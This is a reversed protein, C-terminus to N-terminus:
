EQELRHIGLKSRLHHGAGYLVSLPTEQLVSMGPWDKLLAGLDYRSGLEITQPPDPKVDRSCGWMRGVNRYGEPVEKQYMKTAYKVAYRKGGDKKRLAEAKTGAKLHDPNGSGVIRYWTESLWDKPVFVNVLIHFHPAGRRQWELFWLYSLTPHHYRLLSLLHNLHKKVLKGDQEINPYTLTLMTTFEVPTNAAVFMLRQRSEKSWEGLEGREGGGNGKANSHWTVVADQKYIEIRVPIWGAAVKKSIHSM